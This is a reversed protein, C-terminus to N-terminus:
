FFISKKAKLSFFSNRLTNLEFVIRFIRCFFFFWYWKWLFIDNPSFEQCDVFFDTRSRERERERWVSLGSRFCFGSMVILSLLIFSFLILSVYIMMFSCYHKKHFHTTTTTTITGKSSMVSFALLCVSLFLNILSFHVVTIITHTSLSSLLLLLVIILYMM